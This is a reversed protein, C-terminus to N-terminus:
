RPRRTRSARIREIREYTNSTRATRRLAAHGRLRVVLLVVISAFAVGILLFRLRPALPLLAGAALM